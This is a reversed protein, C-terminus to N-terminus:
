IWEELLNPVHLINFIMNADRKTLLTLDAQLGADLFFGLAHEGTLGVTELRERLLKLEKEDCLANPNGDCLIFPTKHGYEFLEKEPALTRLNGYWPALHEIDRGKGRISEIASTIKRELTKKASLDDEEPSFFADLLENIIPLRSIGKHEDSSIAISAAQTFHNSPLLRLRLGTPTLGFRTNFAFTIGHNELFHWWLKPMYLTEGPELTCEFAEHYEFFARKEADDFLHVPIGSFNRIPQLRHTFNPNVLYIRKRGIVQTFLVERQDLDFHLPAVLGHNALYIKFHPRTIEQSGVRLPPNLWNRILPPMKEERCYVETEPNSEILALYESITVIRDPPAKVTNKGGEYFKRFYNPGIRIPLSGARNELGDLSKIEAIPDNSYLDTIIVPERNLVYFAFDKVDGAKIRSIPKM